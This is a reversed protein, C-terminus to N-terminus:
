NYSSHYVRGNEPEVGKYYFLEQVTVIQYGRSMLEPILIEAADVTFWHIDHMLVIDGDGAEALVHEVVQETNRFDWDKSDLNWTILPAYSYKKVDDNYGGYPPRVLTPYEGIVSFIADRAKTIEEKIEDVTLNKLRKHAHTHSAVENGSDYVMQLAKENSAGWLVRDGLVFFTARANNKELIELLRPTQQYHPGDDFTLAIMPKDPDLERIREAVVNGNVTIAMYTHLEIYPIVIAHKQGNQEYYFKAGDATLVYTAFAERTGEPMGETEEAAEDADADPEGDEPQKAEKVQEALYSYALDAFLTEADATEGKKKNYLWMGSETEKRGDVEKEIHFLVSLLGDTEGDEYDILLKRETGGEKNMETVTEALLGHAFQEVATGAGDEEYLPYRMGYSVGETYAFTEMMNGLHAYEAEFQVQPPEAEPTPTATATPTNHNAESDVPPTVPEPKVETMVDINDTDKPKEEKTLKMAWNIVFFTLVLMFVCWSCLLGRKLTSMGKKKRKM